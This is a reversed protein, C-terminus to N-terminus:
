RNGSRTMTAASGGPSPQSTTRSRTSVRATRQPVIAVPWLMTVLSGVGLESQVTITAGHAECLRRVLALGMGMGGYKRTRSNDEQFFRDFVRPLADPAIGIGDDIVEIRCRGTASEPRARVTVHGGEPTFKVANDLLARVVKRFRVPDALVVADAAIDHTITVPLEGKFHGGVDGAAERVIESVVVPTPRLDLTDSSLLSFDVITELLEGLMHTSIEIDRVLDIKADDDWTTWARTLLEIQGQIALVPTRL